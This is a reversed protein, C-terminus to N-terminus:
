SALPTLGVLPLPPLHVKEAGEPNVLPRALGRVEKLEGDPGVLALIGSFLRAPVLVLSGWPLAPSLISVPDM